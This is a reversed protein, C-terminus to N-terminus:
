VANDGTNERGSRGSNSKEAQELEAGDEQSDTAPTEAPRTPAYPSRARIRQGYYWFIAPIPVLVIAVCGLLTGTWNVGLANFM